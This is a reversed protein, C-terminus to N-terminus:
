KCLKQTREVILDYFQQERQVIQKMKLELKMFSPNKFVICYRFWKYIRDYYKSINLLKYINNANKFYWYIKELGKADKYYLRHLKEMEFDFESKKKKPANSVSNNHIRYLVISEDVFNISLDKINKIIAYWTPDDEFLRFKSNLKECKSQEYITKTYITSPTHLFCGKRFKKLINKQKVFYKNYFYDILQKKDYSLVGECLNIRIYSKLEKADLDSYLKFINKSSILDDGAIIKFNQNENIKSLIKQYNKVTGLNYTNCIFEVENFLDKNECLWQKIVQVTNDVSCDDIIILNIKLETSYMEIQYKISELTECIMLEQNFALVGFVFSNFKNIKNNM